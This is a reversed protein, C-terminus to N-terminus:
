QASSPRISATRSSRLDYRYYYITTQHEKRPVDCFGGKAFVKSGKKSRANSLHNGGSFQRGEPRRGRHAGPGELQLGGLPHWPYQVCMYIYIYIYIYTHTYIYLSLSLSEGGGRVAADAQRAADGPAAGRRLPRRAGIQIYIYIYTYMHMANIYVHIHIYIYIYIYVYIYVYM